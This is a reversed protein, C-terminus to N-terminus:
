NAGRRAHSEHWIWSVDPEVRFWSHRHIFVGPALGLSDSWTSQRGERVQDLDVISAGGPITKVNERATEISGQTLSDAKGTVVVTDLPKSGGSQASAIGSFALAISIAVPTLFLNNKHKM